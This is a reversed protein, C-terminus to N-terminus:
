TGQKVSKDQRRKEKVLSLLSGQLVMGMQRKSMQQEGIFSNGKAKNTVFVERGNRIAKRPNNLVIEDGEDVADYAEQNKFTL